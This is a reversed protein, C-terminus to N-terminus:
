FIHKLVAHRMNCSSAVESVLKPVIWLAKENGPPVLLPPTDLTACSTNAQPTMGSAEPAAAGM